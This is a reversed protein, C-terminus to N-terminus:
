GPRPAEVVTVTSKEPEPLEHRGCDREFLETAFRLAEEDNQGDAPYTVKLTFLSPDSGPDELFSVKEALPGFNLEDGEGAHFLSILEPQPKFSSTFTAEFCILLAAHQAPGNVEGDGPAYPGPSINPPRLKDALGELQIAFAGAVPDACRSLWPTLRGIEDAADRASGRMGDWM